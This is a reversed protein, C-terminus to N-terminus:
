LIGGPVLEVDQAELLGLGAHAIHGGLDLGNLPSSPGWVLNDFVGVRGVVVFTASGDDIEDWLHHM